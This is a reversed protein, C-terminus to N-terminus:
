LSDVLQRIEESFQAYAVSYNNSFNRELARCFDKYYRAIVMFLLGQKNIGIGQEVEGFMSVQGSGKMWYEHALGCRFVDYVGTERKTLRADRLKRDLQMVFDEGYMTGLFGDFAAGNEDGKLLKGFAETYVMLGAAALWNGGGPLVGVLRLVNKELPRDAKALLIERGIDSIVFKIAEVKQDDTV